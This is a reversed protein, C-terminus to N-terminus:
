SSPKDRLFSTMVRKIVIPYVLSNALLEVANNARITDPAPLGLAASCRTLKWKDQLVLILSLSPVTGLVLVSSHDVAM